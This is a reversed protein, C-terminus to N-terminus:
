YNALPLSNIIKRKARFLSTKMSGLLMNNKDAIEQYSDGELIGMILKSQQLSLNPLFAMIYKKEELFPEDFETVMNCGFYDICKPDNTNSYQQETIELNAHKSYQSTNTKSLVARDISRRTIGSVIYCLFPNNTPLPFSSATTIPEGQYKEPEKTVRLLIDQVVDNADDLNGCIRFSINILRQYHHKIILDIVDTHLLHNQM